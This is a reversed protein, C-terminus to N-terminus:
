ATIEVNALIFAMANQLKQFKINYLELMQEIIGIIFDVHYIDTNSDDGDLASAVRGVGDCLNFAIEFTKRLIFHKIRDHLQQQADM